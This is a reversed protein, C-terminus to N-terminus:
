LHNMLILCSHANRVFRFVYLLMSQEFMVQYCKSLYSEGEKSGLLNVLVSDGYDSILKEMHRFIAGRKLYATL